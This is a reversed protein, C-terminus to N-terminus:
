LFFTSNLPSFEVIWFPAQLLMTGSTWHCTELKILEYLFFCHKHYWIIIKSKDHFINKHILVFIFCGSLKSLPSYNISTKPVTGKRHKPDKILPGMKNIM